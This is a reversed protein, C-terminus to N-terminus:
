ARHLGEPKIISPNKRHPFVKCAVEWYRWALKVLGIRAQMSPDGAKGNEVTVGHIRLIYCDSFREDSRSTWVIDFGPPLPYAAITAEFEQKKLNTLEAEAEALKAKLESVTSHQIAVRDHLAAVTDAM